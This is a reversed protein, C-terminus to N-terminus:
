GDYPMLIEDPHLGAISPFNGAAIQEGLCTVARFYRDARSSAPSSAPSTRACAIPRKGCSKTRKGPQM